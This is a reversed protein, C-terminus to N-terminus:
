VDYGCLYINVYGERFLFLLMPDTVMEITELASYQM